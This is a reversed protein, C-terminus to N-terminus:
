RHHTVLQVLPKYSYYNHQTHAYINPTQPSADLLIVTPSSNGTMQTQPKGEHRYEELINGILLAPRQSNAQHTTYDPTHTMMVGQHTVTVLQMNYASCM